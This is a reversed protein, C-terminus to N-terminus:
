LLPVQVKLGWFSDSESGEPDLNGVSWCESTVAGSQSSLQKTACSGSEMKNARCESVSDPRSPHSPTETSEQLIVKVHSSPGPPAGDKQWSPCRFGSLPVLVNLGVLSWFWWVRM